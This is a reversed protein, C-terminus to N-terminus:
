RTGPAVLGALSSTGQAPGTEPRSAALDRRVGRDARVAPSVRCQRHAPHRRYAILPLDRYAAPPLNAGVALVLSRM